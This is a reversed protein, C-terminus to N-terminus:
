WRSSILIMLLGPTQVISQTYIIYLIVQYSSRLRRGWPREMLTYKSIGTQTGDRLYFLFDTNIYM